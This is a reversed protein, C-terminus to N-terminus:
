CPINLVQKAGPTTSALFLSTFLVPVAEANMCSLNDFPSFFFLLLFLEAMLLFFSHFLAM